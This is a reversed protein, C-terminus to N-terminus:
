QSLRDLRKEAAERREPQRQGGPLSRLHEALARAVEREADRDGADAHIDALLEYVRGKRPGYALELARTAWTKAADLDGAERALWAVRYPPDYEGPLEEALEILDPLLAEPEGLYTHVEARPWSFTSAAGPSPARRAAEALHDRQRRALERAGEDDGLAERIQRRTRLATSEDNQSLQHEGSVLEALRAEALKMLAREDAPDPKLEACLRAYRSFSVASSSAGTDDIHARAIEGCAEPDGIRVSALITSVLVDPRRPWGAPAVALAREYAAKADAYEGESLARDGRRAHARPDDDDLEGARAAADLHAQEGELLFERLQSVSAASTLRTLIAGDTDLVYLTPWVEMPLRELVSANDERDTDVKLWVFRDALPALGPDPLVESSMSRCTHCWPAWMYVVLPRERERAFALARDYDDELWPISKSADDAAKVAEEYGASASVQPDPREGTTEGDTADDRDCALWVLAAAAVPVFPASRASPM